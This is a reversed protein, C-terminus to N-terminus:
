YKVIPLLAVNKPRTEAATRAVRSADFSIIRQTGGVGGKTGSGGSIAFAGSASVDIVDGFTGTINQLADDQYSGFVRGSDYGAGDDYGRDFIGAGPPLRFNGALPNPLGNFNNFTTGIVAFLESYVTESVESSDRVLWGEPPTSGCSYGSFGPPFAGVPPAKFEVTELFTQPSKWINATNLLAISRAETFTVAGLNDVEAIGALFKEEIDAPLPDSTNSSEYGKVGGVYTIWIYYSNDSTLGTLTDSTWGEVEEEASNDWLTVTNGGISLQNTGGVFLSANLRRVGDGSEYADQFKQLDDIAEFYSDVTAEILGYNVTQHSASVQQGAAIGTLNRNYSILPFPM